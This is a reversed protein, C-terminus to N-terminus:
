TELRQGCSDCALYPRRRGASRLRFRAIGCYSCRLPILTAARDQALQGATTSPTSQDTDGRHGGDHVSAELGAFGESVLASAAADAERPAELARALEEIRLPKTLLPCGHLRLLQQPPANGMGEVMLIIKIGPQARDAATPLDSVGLSALRFDMLIADFKRSGIVAWAAAASEATHVECACDRLARACQEQSSVDMDVLLVKRTMAALHLGVVSPAKVM